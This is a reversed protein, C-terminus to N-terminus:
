KSPFSQVGFETACRPILYSSDKWLNIFENYFHVDGYTESNPSQDVGGAAESHVGNSPSSLLYPRSPDLASVVPGITDKYLTRYDKIVDSSPYNPVYWWGSMIALENENNGAWTLISPHYRLRRVQVVTEEHVNSLFDQDVPYLACAFLMDHWLLIGTEDAKEYFYDPEFIGGGWVRLANMNAEKASDLLFATRQTFNRGYFNEVEILNSGKLFIPINNVKFYFDRGKGENNSDVFDQVLEVYRFGVRKSKSSTVTGQVLTQVLLDYLKQQGYGNPWWLSVKSQSVVMNFSVTSIGSNDCIIKFINSQKLEIEPISASLSFVLNTKPVCFVDAEVLLNFNNSTTNFTLLPSIQKLSVQDAVYELYVDQWIGTTPYSPGWDWSFSAQSKRIFNPHCEGNQIPLPCDPPVYHGYRARYTSALGAAYGVASQFKVTITNKGSVLYSKVNFNYDIFQNLSKFLFANNIYVSAITDLGDFRLWVQQANISSYNSLDITKTYTWDTRGVWQYKVDNKDKIPNDILGAKWLDTYIDGPVTAPGTKSSDNNSTFTWDNGNLAVRTPISLCSPVFILIFLIGPFVAM